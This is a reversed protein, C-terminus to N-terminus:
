SGVGALDGSNGGRTAGRAASPQAHTRRKSRWNSVSVMDFYIGLLSPFVFIVLLTSALLGFAVAAVLPVLVQAQPSTEFVMPILGAFTTSFSLVVPRFRHRVAEVAATLYDDQEIEAEFFTLFLIANNVVVGSLSAFGIFSPMSIDLGLAYHGFVTGILAFPISLMVMVPLTYSRFQFALILYVGFLGTLLAQAISTQTKQQEETAGGIGIDVDAFSQQLGPGLEDTVVASIATSTTAGRDIKGIIRAVARGNKRTIQAYSATLEIDAITGLAVQDGGAVTLPFQELDSLTPVTDGLEVRVSVDSLGQRFSDTETGSFAARLQTTLAHPTLGAVYGFENLSLRIEPRGGSFDQWAETVDDRALLQGLLQSSAAELQDLDHSVLEVDLDDGGPGGAIQTFNSQVLDAIPGTADRWQLLVDEAAVNRLDSALLDATVTVTYAGNDKVDQNSGYSVLVREVLPQAETTRQSLDANVQEMGALIQDVVQETREIPLGSSLAIRAEITDGETEPFSVIKVLGSGLFGVTVILIAFVMGLTLYRVRLLASAVPIVFGDRVRDLMRPVFRKANAEYDVSTHSMHNPLILFAEILSAILTLLLVIPITRLIAGTEGTLFMLPGFVCATTLFSSLVGPMVEGAGKVAADRASMSRRWKAINDAIVISDDMILGVAMLLAILSMMNITVGFVNMAFLGGLFSFPLALSIWVAEDVSFFLCMVLIVLILSQLANSLVLDIQTKVNETQNNVVTLRFPDPYQAGVVALLDSVQAFAEIADDDKRKSVQIIAARDGDIYSRLEPSVETLTIKAVDALRVIGGAENEILVLNELDSLSRRADFYRLTVERGTTQVSGLPARLSREEVGVSVDQPSIGFRRLALQDFSIRYEAESIGSVDATAIMSLNALDDALRDAFRILSDRTDLGSVAVSAIVETQGLISVSPLEADAPLDNIGSVESSVDNYFQGIDGGEAMTLTATARNEVSLCELDDLNNVAGLADDLVLCIQEDVDSASAGPYSVSVSVERAAFEPFSEREMGSLVSFGLISVAVLVLNAAIPHRAFYSIM